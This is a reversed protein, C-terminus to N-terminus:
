NTEPSRLTHDPRGCVFCVIDTGLSLPFEYTVAPRRCGKFGCVRRAEDPIPFATRWGVLEVRGLATERKQALATVGM